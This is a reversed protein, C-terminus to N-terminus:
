PAFSTTPENNEVFSKSRHLLYRKYFLQTSGHATFSSFHATFTGFHAARTSTTHQRLAAKHQHIDASLRALVANNGSLVNYPNHPNPISLDKIGKGPSAAASSIFNRFHSSM